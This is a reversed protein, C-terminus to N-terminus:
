ASSKNYFCGVKHLISLEIVARRLEKERYWLPPLRLLWMERVGQEALTNKGPESGVVPFSM